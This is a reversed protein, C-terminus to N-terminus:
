KVGAWTDGQMAKKTLKYKKSNEHETNEHMNIITTLETVEESDMGDFM